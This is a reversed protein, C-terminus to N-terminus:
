SSFPKKNLPHLWCHDPFENSGSVMVEEPLHVKAKLQCGCVNCGQLDEDYETTANKILAMLKPLVTSCGMCGRVAVNQPCAACIAARRNSEVSDVINGGGASWKVVTQLFRKVDAHTLQRESGGTDACNAAMMPDDCVENCVRDQWGPMLDGGRTERVSAIARLLEGINRCKVEEGQENWTYLRPFNKNTNYRGCMYLVYVSFLFM